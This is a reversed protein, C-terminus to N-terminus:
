IRTLHALHHSYTGDEMLIGHDDMKSRRVYGHAHIIENPATMIGVHIIKGQMNNFFALDGEQVSTRDVREGQEAQQWADRLLKKGAIRAVQQSLGSCDIGFPSKGGWLYPTGIYAEAISAMSSTPLRFSTMYSVYEDGVLSKMDKFFPLVSGRLVQVPIAGVQCSVNLEHAVGHETSVYNNVYEDSVPSHLKPDIWGEYGDYWIKIKTWKETEEIVEYLDGFLVQTVMEASDAAEARVPVVSHKCIGYM